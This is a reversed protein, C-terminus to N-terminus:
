FAGKKYKDGFLNSLLGEVSLVLGVKGDGMIAGGMINKSKSLGELNKLVVQQQEMLEDVWIGAEQEKNKILICVRDMHNKKSPIFSQFLEDLRIIPFLKGRVNVAEGTKKVTIIQEPAPKFSELINIMPIIYSNDAVKIILGNIVGLTVTLPTQLRVITGKGKETTIHINGGQKKIGSLVVDMGVGRGSVESVKESTSLGPVFILNILEQEPMAALEERTYLKKAEAVSKIKELDIGKGDDKINVHLYKDDNYAEIQIEGRAPKGAKKREEQTEIGHDVTNRVIHMLIADLDNLLSKDLYSDEGTITLTVEKGMSRALDRVLRPTNNLIQRIEVRRLQMLSDQLTFIQEGFVMNASKYEKKLAPDIDTMTDMKKQIYNFVEGITILEGVGDLFMDIKEENVRITKAMSMVTKPKEKKEEPMGPTEELLIEKEPEVAELLEKIDNIVSFFYEMMLEDMELDQMEFIAISEEIETITKAIDADPSKKLIELLGKFKGFFDAVEKEEVPEEQKKCRKIYNSCPAFYETVEIGKFFWKTMKEKEEKERAADDTKTFCMGLEELQQVFEHFQPESQLFTKVKQFAEFSREACFEVSLIGTNLRQFCQGLKALFETDTKREKRDKSEPSKLFGNFIGKLHDMGEFLLDIIERSAEKTNNKVWDLIDELKHATNKLSKFQFLGASGKITHMRRFISEILEMDGPRHELNVLDNDMSALADKTESIFIDLFESFDEKM